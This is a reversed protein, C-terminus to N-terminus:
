VTMSGCSAGRGATQPAATAAGLALPSAGQYPWIQCDTWSASRGVAPITGTGAGVVAGHGVVSIQASNETGVGSRVRTSFGTDVQLGADLGANLGADLGVEPGDPALQTPHGSSHGADRM